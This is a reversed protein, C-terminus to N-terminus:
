YGQVIRWVPNCECPLFANRHFGFCVSFLPISALGATEEVVYLNLSELLLVLYGQQVIVLKLIISLHYLVQLPDHPTM